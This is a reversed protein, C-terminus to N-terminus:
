YGSPCLEVPKGTPSHTPPSIILHALPYEIKLDCRRDCPIDYRKSESIDGGYGLDQPVLTNSFVKESFFPSPEIKKQQWYLSKSWFLTAFFCFRGRKKGKKLFFGGLSLRNEVCLAHM